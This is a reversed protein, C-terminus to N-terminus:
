VLVIPWSARRKRCCILRAARSFTGIEAAPTTGYVIDTQANRDAEALRLYSLSIRKYEAKHFHIPKWDPLRM